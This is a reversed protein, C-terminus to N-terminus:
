YTAEPYPILTGKVFPIVISSLDILEIDFVAREWSVAATLIDSIHLQIGYAGPVEVGESTIATGTVVSLTTPTSFSWGTIESPSTYELRAKMRASWGTLNIVENDPTLYYLIPNLTKGKDFKISIPQARLDLTTAM